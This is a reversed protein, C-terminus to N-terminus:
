RISVTHVLFGGAAPFRSEIKTQPARAKTTTTTTTTTTNTGTGTGSGAAARSPLVVAASFGAVAVLAAFILAPRSM